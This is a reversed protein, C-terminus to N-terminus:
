SRDSRSEWRWLLWGAAAGIALAAAIVLVQLLSPLAGGKYKIYYLIAFAAGAAIGLAIHWTGNSVDRGDSM